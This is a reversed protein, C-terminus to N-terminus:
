VRMIALTTGLRIEKGHSEDWEGSHFYGLKKGHRDYGGGQEVLLYIPSFSKTLLMQLISPSIIKRLDIKLKHGSVADIEFEMSEPKQWDLVEMTFTQHMLHDAATGFAYRLDHLNEKLAQDRWREKEKKGLEYRDKEKRDRTAILIHLIAHLRKRKETLETGVLASLGLDTKANLAQLKEIRANLDVIQTKDAERQHEKDEVKLFELNEWNVM